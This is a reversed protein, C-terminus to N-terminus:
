SLLTRALEAIRRGSAPLALFYGCRFTAAVYPGSVPSGSLLLCSVTPFRSRLLELTWPTPWSDCVAIVLNVDPNARSVPRDVVHMGDLCLREALSVYLTSDAALILIRRKEM